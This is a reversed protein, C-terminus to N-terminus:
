WIIDGQFGYLIDEFGDLTGVKRDEDKLFLQSVEEYFGELDSFHSGNIVTVKKKDNDSISLVM